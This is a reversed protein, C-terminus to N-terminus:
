QPYVARIESIIKEFPDEKYKQQWMFVQLYSPLMDNKTEMAKKSPYKARM